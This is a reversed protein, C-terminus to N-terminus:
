LNQVCTNCRLDSHAWSKGKDLTKKRKNQNKLTWHGLSHLGDDWLEQTINKVDYYQAVALCEDQRWPCRVPHYRASQLLKESQVATWRGTFMDATDAQARPHVPWDQGSSKPLVGGCILETETQGSVQIYKHVPACGGDLTVWMTGDRWSVCCEAGPVKFVGHTHSNLDLYQLQQWNKKNLNVKKREKAQINYLSILCFDIGM